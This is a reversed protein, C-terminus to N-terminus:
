INNKLLLEIQKELQIDDGLGGAIAVIKMMQSGRARADSIDIRGELVDVMYQAAKLAQDHDHKGGTRTSNPTEPSAKVSLLIAMRVLAPTLKHGFRKFIVAATHAVKAASFSLGEGGEM